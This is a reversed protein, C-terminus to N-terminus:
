SKASQPLKEQGDIWRCENKLMGYIAADGNPNAERLIGEFVFGLREDFSRVDKADSDVLVTIRKCKLENFPYDFLARLIRRNAWRPSISAIAMEISPHRYQSYVIGAIIRGESVVGIAECPGFGSEMELERKVWEAVEPGYGYLLEVLLLSRPEVVLCLIM